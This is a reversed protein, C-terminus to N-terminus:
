HHILMSPYLQQTILQRFVQWRDTGQLHSGLLQKAYGEIIGFGMHFPQKLFDIDPHQMYKDAYSRIEEDDCGEHLMYAVNSLVGELLDNARQIKEVDANDSEIGLLPYVHEALWAEQEQPSFLMGCANTAFCEGITARPSFILGISEEIYGQQRYLQQECLAYQTHHGPYVEHCLTDLLQNIHTQSQVLANINVEVRSCYNGNYWCAGGFEDGQEISLDIGENQPLDLMAVTRHRIETLMMEIIAPLKQRAEWRIKHAQRWEHLRRAPTGKGPLAEDYLTLAEEFQAEPTWHYSIDFLLLLEEELSFREGNLKRCTMEMAKVQKSLYTTRQSDFGQEPLTDLLATTERLLAIPKQATGAQVEQKWEQPGYYFDIYPMGTLTRFPKEIRFALQIYAKYWRSNM